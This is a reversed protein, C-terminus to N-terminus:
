LCGNRQAGQVEYLHLWMNAGYKTGARVPLAQHTTRHDALTPDENLVNPWILIRGQKPRVAIDLHDFHTEGGEKVDNLYMYVTLIRPGIPSDVQAPIM